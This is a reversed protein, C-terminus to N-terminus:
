EPAPNASNSFWLWLDRTKELSALVAMNLLAFRMLVFKEATALNFIRVHSSLKQKLNGFLGEILTRKTYLGLQIVNAKSLQRLPHKIKNIRGAKMDIVPTWHKDLILELLKISDFGKDGLVYSDPQHLNNLMPEVLKTDGTYPPGARASLVFRKKNLLGVLAAAKVHAQIKRIELGGYFSMPYVDHYSFGSGDMIVLNPNPEPDMARIQNGVYTVFEQVLELPLKQIRYHYTALSPLERFYDESFELAERFSLQYLNQIGLLALIMADDFTRPRGGRSRDLPLPQSALYAKALEHIRLPKVLTRRM